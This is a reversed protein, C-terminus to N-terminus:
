AQWGMRAAIATFHEPLAAEFHMKEGSTPHVMDLKWAHLYLPAKGGAIEKGVAKVHDNGYKDDGLMPLGIYELHVRLQNMRGTHPTCALLHLEGESALWTWSTHAKDGAKDVRAFPGV